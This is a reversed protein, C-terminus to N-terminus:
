VEDFDWASVLEDGLSPSPSVSSSESGSPSVSASSSASESSSPSESASSSASESSSPSESASSSASESASPSESASSSASESASVSASPSVSASASLSVHFPFHSGAGSLYLAAREDETLVRDFVMVTSQQGIFYIGADPGGLSFYNTAAGLDAVSGGSWVGSNTTTGLGMCRSTTTAHVYEYFTLIWRGRNDGVEVSTGYGRRNYLRHNAGNEPEFFLGHQDSTNAKTKWALMGTQTVGAPVNMWMAVTFDADVPLVQSAVDLYESRSALFGAATGPTRAPVVHAASTVTNTDTLDNSGHSDLRDGSAEDMDHYSLLRNGDKEASTLDAYAKGRGRNYLSELMADSLYYNWVSARSINGTFANGIFGGSGYYLKKYTTWVPHQTLATTVVPAALDVSLVGTRTVPDYRVVIFHWLGDNLLEGWQVVPAEVTSSLTLSILGEQSNGDGLFFGGSGWIPGYEGLVHYWEQATATTPIRLWFVSTVGWGWDLTGGNFNENRLSESQTKDFAAVTVQGNEASEVTNNDTLDNSGHSDVRTVPGSGDSTEDLDWYSLLGTKDGATLDAYAKGNGSNFLSLIETSDKAASWIGVRGYRGDTFSNRAGSFHDCGVSFKTACAFNPSNALASSTGQLVGNFYVRLKKESDDFTLTVMTWGPLNKLAAAVTVSNGSSDFLYWTSNVTAHTFLRGSGVISDDISLPRGDATTLGYVWANITAATAGSLIAGSTAELAESSAPVFPGAVVGQPGPQSDPPIVTVPGVGPFKVTNNNTLDVGGHNATHATEDHLSWFNTLNQIMPM